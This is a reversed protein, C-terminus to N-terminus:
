IGLFGRKLVSISLWRTLHVSFSSLDARCYKQWIEQAGQFLILEFFETKSTDSMKLSNTLMNVGSSWYERQCYFCTNLSLLEFAIIDLDFFIKKIKKQM